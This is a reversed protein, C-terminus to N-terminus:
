DDALGIERELRAIARAYYMRAADESTGLRQGIEAFSLKGWNRWVVVRRAREPLRSLAENLRQEEEDRAVQNSPSSNDGAVRDGLPEDGASADLSLERRLDRKQADYFREHVAAIKHLLIGRLWGRLEEVEAGRFRAFLTHAELLTDQVVDSPGAKPRLESALEASAISLLYSRYLDLLRGQADRDGARAAAIWHRVQEVGDEADEVM